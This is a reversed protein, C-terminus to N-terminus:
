SGPQHRPQPQHRRPHVPWGSATAEHSTLHCVGSGGAERVAREECRGKLPRWGNGERLEEGGAGEGGRGLARVGLEERSPKPSLVTHPAPIAVDLASAPVHARQEGRGPLFAPDETHHEWLRVKWM